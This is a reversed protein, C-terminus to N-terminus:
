IRDRQFRESIVRELSSNGELPRQYVLIDMDVHGGAISRLRQEGLELSGIDLNKLQPARVFM